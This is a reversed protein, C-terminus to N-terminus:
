YLSRDLFPDHSPVKCALALGGLTTTQLYEEEPEDSGLKKEYPACFLRHEM